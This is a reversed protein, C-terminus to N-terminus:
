VSVRTGTFTLELRLRTNVIDDGAGRLRLVGDLYASAATSIHKLQVTGGTFQVLKKGAAAPIENLEFTALANSSGVLPPTESNYACISGLIFDTKIHDDFTNAYRYTLIGDYYYGSPLHLAKINQITDYNTATYPAAEGRSVVLPPTKFKVPLAYDNNEDIILKTM